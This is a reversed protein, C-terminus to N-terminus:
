ISREEKRFEKRIGEVLDYPRIYEDSRSYSKLAAYQVVNLIAAGSLEYKDALEILNLDNTALLQEPLSKKWLALRETANPMPFHVVSHFRRLFADDL